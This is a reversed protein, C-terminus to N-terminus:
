PKNDVRLLSYTKFNNRGDEKAEYLATDAHKMLEHRTTGDKPYFAIGISSTTELVHEGIQWPEQLSTLIREAVQIADREEQIESLLVTFEDGGQRALTDSERLCGQVRLAFQKLLEDGVDHGLTDNIRKFKDMDMYMVALKREYREAEKLAQNVREKFLRRNPLGTLADHFAMHNLKEEYMKRETIERSVVLFHKFQGQEDFIPTVKAEFWVWNGHIDQFRYEMMCSEKTEMIHALDKRVHEVDDIHLWDLACKGQYVESSYGLVTIHSPSAYRFCANRDIICVLDKMNEAILRYQEESKRLAEEDRKRRTLDHYMMLFAQKGKHKITIGTVEIDVLTGDTRKIKEETTEIYQGVEKVQKIRNEILGISEPHFYEKISKGVLEELSSVGLLKICAPNAYQIYEDQYIIIPETSSEVLLRYKEESQLLAEEAKKRETIDTRISIYQYPKGKENLFPVITTHVWYFSGDKAQNRFEGRWTKGQGITKWMEKFFEKSHYGSNIIRHDQGLLEERSYKSIECFKDNAYEIIGKKDTIAVISSEDLAKKIDALNKLTEQLDQEMKKRETIDDMITLIATDGQYNISVSNVEIDVIEGDKRILQFEVFPVEEETTSTQLFREKSLVHYNPHIYDFIHKGVAQTDKVIKLASPNAYLITGNQHIVIGKPSLEVVKRYREESEKLEQEVKKRDTIDRFLSLVAPKGDYMIHVGGMEVVISETDDRVMKMEIFPLDKGIKANFVRQKSTEHFDPHIYTFINRGVLQETKLTKFAFPNAYLIEGDRHIMIGKPSHEVVKRYREESEQLNQETRKEETIDRTISCTGLVKGEEDFIPSLTLRIDIPTGDKKICVTDLGITHEGRKAREVMDRQQEKRYKPIIPLSKGLIEAKKWGYIREFAPNVDVVNGDLDLIDIADATSDFLANMRKEIRNLSVKTKKLETIDKAVGFVGLIEGNVTLPVDKIQLYVVEGNKHFVQTEYECPTGQLAKVFQQNTFALYEPVIITEYSLGQIEEQTYGLMKSVVPNIEEIIGEKSLIFIADPNNQIISHYIEFSSESLLLSM